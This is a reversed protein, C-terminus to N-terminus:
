KGHGKHQLAGAAGAMAIKEAAEEKLEAEIREVDSKPVGMKRYLGKRSIDGAKRLGFAIQLEDQKEINLLSGKRISFVMQKVFKEPEMGHSLWQGYFPEFDADTLGRAGFKAIRSKATDFQMM